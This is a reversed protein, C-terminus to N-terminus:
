ATLDIVIGALQVSSHNGEPICAFIKFWSAVVLVSFAAKNISPTHCLRKSWPNGVKKTGPVSMNMLFIGPVLQWNSYRLKLICRKSEYCIVTCFLIYNIQMYHVLHCCLSRAYWDKEIKLVTWLFNKKEGMWNPRSWFGSVYSESVLLHM